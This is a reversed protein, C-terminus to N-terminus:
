RTRVTHAAARDRCCRQDPWAAAAHARTAPRRPNGPQQLGIRDPRRPRTSSDAAKPGSWQTLARCAGSRLGPGFPHGTPPETSLAARPGRQRHMVDTPCRPGESRPGIFRSRPGRPSPGPRRIRRRDLSRHNAAAHRSGGPAQRFRPARPDTRDSRATFVVLGDHPDSRRQVGAGVAELDAARPDVQPLAEVQPRVLQQLWLGFRWAM